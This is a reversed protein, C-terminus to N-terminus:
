ILSRSEGVGFRRTRSGLVERRSAVAQRDVRPLAVFGAPGRTSRRDLRCPPPGAAFNRQRTDAPPNDGAQSFKEATSSPSLRNFRDRRQLAADDVPPLSFVRPRAARRRCLRRSPM